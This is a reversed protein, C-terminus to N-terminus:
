FANEVFEEFNFYGNEDTLSTLQTTLQVIELDTINMESLIDKLRQLKIKGKHEYEKSLLRFANKIDV